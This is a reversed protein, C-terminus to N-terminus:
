FLNLITIRRLQKLLRRPVGTFRQFMTLGLGLRRLESYFMKHLKEESPVDDLLWIGDVVCQVADRYLKLFQILISEGGEPAVAEVRATALVRM